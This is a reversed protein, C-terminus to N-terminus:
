FKKKIFNILRTYADLQDTPGWDGHGGNYLKFENYVGLENLRASLDKGQNIPVLPDKDGYLLITPPSVSTAKYLPSLDKFLQPNSDYTQGTIISATSNFEPATTYSPDTFNTPGVISCVIKINNNTNTTYSYLLSLQAGASYAIFGINSSITYNEKKLKNVVSNIDDIQMPFAPNGASALRYNINAVAYEPLNKKLVDIVSNLESKDGGIWSGGHVLILTKTALTRNAPLYLDFTQLPNPGYSVNLLTEEKTSPTDPIPSDEDNKSCSIFFSTVFLFFIIKAKM